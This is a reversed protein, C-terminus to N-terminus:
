LNSEARKRIDALTQFNKVDGDVFIDQLVGTDEVSWPVRQQCILVGDQEYVHLLGTHSNKTGDDTAPKKFIERPERSGDNLLEAYTAKMAFGYTDRTVYQYTYSGIGLVVNDSAFGQAQLRELIQVQREPTISDGYILGIHPDLTRYGKDNTTGGFTDWLKQIAGRREADTFERGSSHLADTRNGCIIDVPDGSDPRIVVKGNRAMIVDKLRPLYDTIVRWFDFTDSVISVIGSPCVETILKKFTEFEGDVLRMCMVSHETATVSGGILEAECNAGYYEELFDIAPITDTGTFSLLHAAGSMMAAEPGMMGRFSFDHGQWKVFEKSGGTVRSSREFEKRYRFATTASTSMPWVVCSLLTELMNTLWFFEDKTNRLTLMPVKTPVFLGEPVSKIKLPLYGLDWLDAIHNYTIVGPGLYNDMRRQYQRMVVDLEQDFFNEDFQRILFEEVFYQPGFCIAGNVGPVRSSRPTLNSYVMATNKPYQFIHGAKYGDKLLVPLVKFM